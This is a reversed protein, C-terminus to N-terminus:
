VTTIYNGPNKVMKFIDINPLKNQYIYELCLPEMTICYDFQDSVLTAAKHVFTEKNCTRISELHQPLVTDKPLYDLFPKRSYGIDPDPTNVPLAMFTLPVNNNQQSARKLQMHKKVKMVTAEQRIKGKKFEKFNKPPEDVRENKESEKRMENEVCRDKRKAGVAEKIKVWKFDSPEEVRVKSWWMKFHKKFLLSLHELSVLNNPLIWRPKQQLQQEIIIKDIDRVNEFDLPENQLEDYLEDAKDKIYNKIEYYSFTDAYCHKPLLFNDLTLVREPKTGTARFLVIHSTNHQMPFIKYAFYDIEAIEADHPYEDIDLARLYSKLLEIPMGNQYIGYLKRIDIETKMFISLVFFWCNNTEGPPDFVEVDTRGRYPEFIDKLQANTPARYEELSKMMQIMESETKIGAGVSHIKTMDNIVKILNTMELRANREIEALQKASEVKENLKEIQENLEEIDLLLNDNKNKLLAIERTNKNCTNCTGTNESKNQNKNKLEQYKAKLDRYKKKYDTKEEEADKPKSTEKIRKLRLIKTGLGWNFDSLTQNMESGYPVVDSARLNKTSTKSLCVVTSTIDSTACQTLPIWMDISKMDLSQVTFIEFCVDKHIVDALHNITLNFAM